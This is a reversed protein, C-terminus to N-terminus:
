RANVGGISLEFPPGDPALPVDGRWSFLSPGPRDESDLLFLTNVSLLRARGAGKPLPREDQSTLRTFARLRLARLDTANVGAPLAVAGRFCGNPFNHPSRAIRFAPLGADSDFWRTKGEQGRVGISFALTADEAPACAELTAFRRPDPVKRSGPRARAAVRGERRAEQASVRYTWPHADMVAERSVGQLDFSFPAPAFRMTVTGRDGLMNNDTKVYLLPHEAERSGGFPMRKHEPGQYEAALIRGEGDLEVGYVYEIDTLRGWTAMLRDPPTGGDENSFVVSYRLRTGRPTAEVEYWMLLPVDSFRGITDPRAHLVPAHALARHEPASATVPELVVRVLSVHRAGRPSLSGDLSLSLRHPGPSLRGLAVRYDAPEPGRALLLHQSYRGDVELVLAAAEWGRREWSCGACGATIIALVESPADLRFAEERLSALGAEM